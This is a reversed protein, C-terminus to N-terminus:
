MAGVDSVTLVGEGVPVSRGLFLGERCAHRHQLFSVLAVHIDQCVDEEADIGIREFCFGM